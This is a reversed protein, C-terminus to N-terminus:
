PYRELSSFDQVVSFVIGLGDGKRMRGGVNSTGQMLLWLQCKNLRSRLKDTM